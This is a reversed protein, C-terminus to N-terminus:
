QNDSSRNPSETNDDKTVTEPKPVFTLPLPIVLKTAIGGIGELAALSDLINLALRQSPVTTDAIATKLLSMRLQQHWNLKDQEGLSLSSSVEEWQDYVSRLLETANEKSFKQNKVLETVIESSSYGGAIWEGIQEQDSVKDNDNDNNTEM